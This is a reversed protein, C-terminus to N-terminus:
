EFDNYKNKWEKQITKSIEKYERFYKRLDPNNRLSRLQEISEPEAATLYCKKSNIM